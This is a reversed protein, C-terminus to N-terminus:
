RAWGFIFKFKWLVIQWAKQMEYNRVKGIHFYLTNECDLHDITKWTTNAWQWQGVFRGWSM